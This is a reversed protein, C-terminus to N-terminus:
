IKHNFRLYSRTIHKKESDVLQNMKKRIIIGNVLYYVYKIKFNKLSQMCNQCPMSNIGMTGTNTIKIVLLDFQKRQLKAKRIIRMLKKTLNYEAHATKNKGPVIHYSNKAFIVNKAINLILFLLLLYIICISQHFLMM